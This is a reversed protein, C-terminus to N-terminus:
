SMGPQGFGKPIPRRRARTTASSGDLDSTAGARPGVDVADQLAHRGNGLVQAPERGSGSRLGRANRTRASELSFASNGNANQRWIGSARKEGDTRVERVSPM